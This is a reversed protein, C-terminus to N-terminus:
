SFLQAKNSFFALVMAEDVEDLKAPKWHPNQDKDIVAARVGEFFDPTKLFQLAVNFEMQMVHDFDMSQGQRQQHLTVKLSTPSRSLLQKLTKSSWENNQEELRVMIEEVSEGAFCDAIAKEHDALRLPDFEVSFRNIIESVRHGEHSSFPENALADLLVQQQESSIVHNVLGLWHADSAGIREGTMGLFLGLKNKCRPLFYGAGIDPFFGIATEPMAFMLRETAVRHSGHISVGAGGGMTIGDLWAVYPKKFHFLTSNMQYEQQFFQAAQEPNERKSLYLTRIDGGACFARDGAGRIFVAKIAEDKEWQLLQNRLATCMYMTLANLAKPRNLTILGINGQNGPIESFLIEQQSEESM